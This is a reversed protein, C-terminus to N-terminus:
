EKITIAGSRTMDEGNNSLPITEFQIIVARAVAAKIRSGKKQQLDRRVGPHRNPDPTAPTEVWVSTLM